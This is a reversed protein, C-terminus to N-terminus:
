YCSFLYLYFLFLFRFLPNLEYIGQENLIYQELIEKDADIIWYEEVSHDQTRKRQEAELQKQVKDVILRAQPSALITNVLDIM